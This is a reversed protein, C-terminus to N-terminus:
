CVTTDGDVCGWMDSSPELYLPLETQKGLCQESWKKTLAMCAQAYYSVASLCGLGSSGLVGV